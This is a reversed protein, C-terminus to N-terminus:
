AFDNAGIRGTVEHIAEVLQAVGRHTLMSDYEINYQEAFERLEGELTKTMNINGSIVQNAYSYIAANINSNVTQSNLAAIGEKTSSGIRIELQNLLDAPAYSFKSKLVDRLSEPRNEKPPRGRKKRSPAPKKEEVILPSEETDEELIVEDQPEILTGKDSM